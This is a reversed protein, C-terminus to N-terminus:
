KEVVAIMKSREEAEVETYVCGCYCQRYLKYKKTLAVSKAYGNNKKFDSRLFRVGVKEELAIGLENLLQSPKRPSVTLSTSFYDFGAAKAKVATQELRLGFCSTCRKSGEGLTELGRISAYFPEPNYDETVVEYRLGMEEILRIQEALRKEYEPAPHINPNFFYVTLDFYDNLVGFVYPSCPGCCTHLLLKPRIGAKKIEELEKLMLQHYNINQKHM